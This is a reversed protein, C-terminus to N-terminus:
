ALSSIQTKMYEIFRKKRERASRKQNHQQRAWTTNEVLLEPRDGFSGSGILWFMRDLSYPTEDANIAIQKMAAITGQTDRDSKALGLGFCIDMTHVDPKVFNTFGLEKLFDLPLAAGYGNIAASLEKQAIREGKADPQKSLTEFYDYFEEATNFKCLYRAGSIITRCYGYDPVTPEKRNFPERQLTAFLNYIDWQRAIEHPDFNCLLARVKKYREKQKDTSWGDFNEGFVDKVGGSGSGRNRAHNLLHDYIDNLTKFYRMPYNPQLYPTIDLRNELMVGEIYHRTLRYIERNRNPNDMLATDKYKGIVELCKSTLEVSKGAWRM